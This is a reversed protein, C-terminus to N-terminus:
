RKLMHGWMKAKDSDPSTVVTFIYRPDSKENHRFLARRDAVNKAMPIRAPLLSFKLAM